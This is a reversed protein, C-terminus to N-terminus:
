RRSVLHGVAAIAPVWRLVLICPREHDPCEYAAAAERRAPGGGGVGERWCGVDVVVGVFYHLAFSCRESHNVDFPFSLLFSM